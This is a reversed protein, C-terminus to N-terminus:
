LSNELLTQLKKARAEVHHVNTTPKHDLVLTNDAFTSWRSESSIGEENKIVVKTLEDAIAEKGMDDQCISKLATLLPQFYVQPWSKQYLHSMGDVQLTGWDVDVELDKGVVEKLEKLFQQFENEQFEKTIRREALGM